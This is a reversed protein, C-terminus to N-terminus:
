PEDSGMQGSIDASKILAYEELMEAIREPNNYMLVDLISLHSVFHDAPQTYPLVNMNHFYLDIGAEKFVKDTYLHIGGIPNIYTTAGMSNCIAIVKNVGKCQNDVALSSSIVLSTKINLHELMVLIANYVFQFLNRSNYEFVSKILPFTAKFFPAERYANEMKALTKRKVVDFIDSIHKENVPLSDSSAALPLTFMTDHGNLLMRNRNIWGKKTYKVNDYVVFIDVAKILQFYGLYPLFYPQMIAIKKSAPKLSNGSVPKYYLDDKLLYM